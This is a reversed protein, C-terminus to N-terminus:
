KCLRDSHVLQLANVDTKAVLVKKTNEGLQQQQQQQQENENWSAPVPYNPSVTVGIMLSSPDGRKPVIPNTLRNWIAMVREWASLEQIHGFVGPAKAPDHVLIHGAETATNRSNYLVAQRESSVQLRHIYPMGDFAHNIVLKGLNYKGPGPM